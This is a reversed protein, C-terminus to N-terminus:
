QSQLESTHEESRLQEPVVHTTSTRSAIALVLDVDMDALAGLKLGRLDGAVPRRFTLESLTAEGYAIPKSLPVPKSITVTTTM